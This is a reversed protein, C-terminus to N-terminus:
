CVALLQLGELVRCGITFGLVRCATRFGLVRCATPFGTLCPLQLCEFMPCSSVRWYVAAPARRGDHRLRRLPVRWFVCFSSLRVSDLVAAPSGCM